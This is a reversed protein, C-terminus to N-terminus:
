TCLVCSIPLCFRGSVAVNGFKCVLLLLRNLYIDPRGIDLSIVYALEALGTFVVVSIVQGVWTVRPYM